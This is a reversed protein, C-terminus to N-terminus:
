KKVQLIIHGLIMSISDLHQEKHLIAACPCLHKVQRNAVPLVLSIGPDCSEPALRKFPTSALHSPFSSHVFYLCLM